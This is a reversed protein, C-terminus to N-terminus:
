FTTRRLTTRLAHKQFPPPAKGAAAAVSNLWWQPLAERSEKLGLAYPNLQTTPSGGKTLVHGNGTLDRLDDATALPFHGYLSTRKVPWFSFAERKIEDDSMGINWVKANYIYGNFWEDYSDNGFWLAGPTFVPVGSVSATQWVRSPNMHVGRINSSPTGITFAVFHWAGTAPATAFDVIRDTPDHTSINFANADTFGLVAYYTASSVGSEIGTIYSYASRSSIYYFWLAITFDGVSTPLSTALRHYNGTAAYKSSM